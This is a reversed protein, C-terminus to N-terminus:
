KSSEYDWWGMSPTHKGRYIDLYASKAFFMRLDSLRQQFLAECEKALNHKERRRYEDAKVGHILIDHFSEPFAPQDNNSLTTAKALGSAYMIINTDVAPVCDFQVTVSTPSTSRICYLTPFDTRITKTLLEDFTIERLLIPKDTSEPADPYPVDYRFVIDIKEIDSFSLTSVDNAGIFIEDVQVRRTPIMGISSTVQRYRVNLEHGIRTKIEQSPTNLDAAIYEVLENMTV